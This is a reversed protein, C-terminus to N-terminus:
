CATDRASPTPEREQKWLPSPVTPDLHNPQIMEYVIRRTDFEDVENMGTDLRHELHTRQTSLDTQATEVAIVRVDCPLRIQVLM